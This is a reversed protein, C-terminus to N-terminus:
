THPVPLHFCGLGVAVSVMLSSRLVEYQMQQAGDHRLPHAEWCKMVKWEIEVLEVSWVAGLSVLQSRAIKSENRGVGLVLLDVIAVFIQFPNDSAASSVGNYVIQFAPALTLFVHV